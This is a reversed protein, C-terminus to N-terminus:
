SIAATAMAVVTPVQPYLTECRTRGLEATRLATGAETAFM